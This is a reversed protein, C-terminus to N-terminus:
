DLKEVYVYYAGLSRGDDLEFWTQLHTECAPVTLEFEAGNDFLGVSKWAEEGAISIGARQVPLAVGGGWRIRDKWSAGVPSEEDMDIRLETWSVPEGDELGGTIPADEEEPWRRLTFRYAGAEVVDVEWYGNCIPGQRVLCQNWAGEWEEDRANHWDYTNLRLSNSGPGGIPIPIEEDFQPSVKQWWTGYAERLDAVTGPHEAAVDYRQEPDEKIAYLEVGNVLRWHDTMVASRRWKVPRPLRQTDTVIAREPWEANDRGAGNEVGSAEGVTVESNRLLPVLSSGDFDTECPTGLDCLEILTPLIDINATLRDVDRGADLSGAPWHMFFPVRHGGDYESAKKGRMGANYGNVVFHDEDVDLGGSSGNDTMFIFITNEALEMEKLRSRLKGVNEDIRAVMGYFKARSEHPTLPLYPDSYSPEVLHPAHPANTPIFCFFPRHRNREIFRLGQQFWVDTCYGQYRTFSRGDWYSDDFYSNGWYDPTQSVGGGGHVVVTEFGRDQPRYPANDGLHWKGFIGTAYGSRSFYDAMSVEDTRLLSRGGSTRWVGTSNAYHGTLLGARTPACTPGVHYNTLRVSVAHLADIQPTKLIPNGHCSLDGYGQDDTLVFVVNPRVGPM